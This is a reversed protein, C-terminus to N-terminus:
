LIDKGCLEQEVEDASKATAIIATKLLQEDADSPIQVAFIAAFEENWKMSSVYGIKYESNKNLLSRIKAETFPMESLCFVSWVKRFEYGKFVTSKTNIFVIQSRDKDLGSIVLKADGDADVKYTLDLSKLAAELRPDLRSDARTEDRVKKGFGVLIYIAVAIAALLTVLYAAKILQGKNFRSQKQTDMKWTMLSTLYDM